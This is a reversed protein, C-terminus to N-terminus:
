ESLNVSEIWVEGKGKVPSVLFRDRGYSTKVDRVIVNIILGGASITAEKGVYKEILEKMSYTYCIDRNNDLVITTIVTHVTFYPEILGNRPENGEINEENEHKWGWFPPASRCLDPM